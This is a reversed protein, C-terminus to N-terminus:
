KVLSNVRPKKRYRERNSNNESTESTEKREGVSRERM